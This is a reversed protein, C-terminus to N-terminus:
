KTYIRGFAEFPFIKGVTTKKGVSLIPFRFPMKQIYMRNNQM